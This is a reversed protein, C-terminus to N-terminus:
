VTNKLMVRKAIKPLPVMSERQMYGIVMAGEFVTAGPDVLPCQGKRTGQPLRLGSVRTVRPVRDQCAHCAIRVGRALRHRSESVPTTLKPLGSRAPLPDIKAPISDLPNATRQTAFVYLNSVHVEASITM